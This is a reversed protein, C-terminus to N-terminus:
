KFECCYLKQYYETIKESTTDDNPISLISFVKSKMKMTACIQPIFDQTITDSKWLLYLTKSPWNSNNISHIYDALDSINIYHTPKVDQKIIDILKFTYSADFLKDMLFKIIISFTSVTLIMNLFIKLGTPKYQSISFATFTSSDPCILQKSLIFDGTTDYYSFLLLMGISLAILIQNTRQVDNRLYIKHAILKIGIMNLYSAMVMLILIMLFSFGGTLLSGRNLSSGSIIGSGENCNVCFQTVYETTVNGVSQQCRTIPGEDSVAKRLLFFGGIIIAYSLSFIFVPNRIKNIITRIMEPEPVYILSDKPDFLQSKSLNSDNIQTM